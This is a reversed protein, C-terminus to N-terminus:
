SSLHLLHWLFILCPIVGNCQECSPHTFIHWIPVVQLLILLYLFCFIQVHLVWLASSSFLGLGAVTCASAAPDWGQFDGAINVGSTAVESMNVQLTVLFLCSGDDTNAYPNTNAAGEDICGLVIPTLCSGDDVTVEASFELYESDMCGEVWEICSGDDLTANEEYNLATPDTCGEIVFICSGDDQNAAADWNSANFDTCGLVPYVCTGDDDTATSDYNTANEDTCGLIICSGDDTNANPDYNCATPDTCGYIVAICSGDDCTALSDYNFALPDTCGDVCCSGDDTNALPDFNSSNPDTCGYIATICNNVTLSYSVSSGFFIQGYALVAGSADTLTVSGLNGTVWGDNGADMLTLTYCGDVLCTSDTATASGIGSLAPSSYM